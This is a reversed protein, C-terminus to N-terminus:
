FNGASIEFDCPSLKSQLFSDGVEGSLVALHLDPVAKKLSSLTEVFRSYPIGPYPVVFIIREARTEYIKSVLLPLDKDNIERGYITTKGDELLRVFVWDWQGDCIGRPARHHLRPLLIGIGTAPPSQVLFVSLTLLLFLSALSPALLSRLRLLEVSNVQVAL